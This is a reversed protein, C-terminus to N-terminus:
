SPCSAFLSALLPLSQIDRWSYLQPIQSRKALEWRKLDQWEGYQRSGLRWCTLRQSVNLTWWRNHQLEKGPHSGAMWFRWIEGAKNESTWDRSLRTGSRLNLHTTGRSLHKSSALVKLNGKTHGVPSGGPRCSAGPGRDAPMTEWNRPCMSRSECDSFTYFWLYLWSCSPGYFGANFLATLYTSDPQRMSWLLPAQELSLSSSLEQLLMDWGLAGAHYQGESETHAVLGRLM